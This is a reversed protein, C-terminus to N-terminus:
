FVESRHTGDGNAAGTAVLEAAGDGDLDVGSLTARLTIPALAVRAAPSFGEDGARGFFVFADALSAAALDLRGDGNLDAVVLEGSRAPFGIETPFRDQPGPGCASLLSLLALVHRMPYCGRPVHSSNSRPPM